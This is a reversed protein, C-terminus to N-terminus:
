VRFGWGRLGRLGRLGRFGKIRLGLVGSGRSPESRAAWLRVWRMASQSM